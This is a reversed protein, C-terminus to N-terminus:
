GKMKRENKENRMGESGRVRGGKWEGEGERKGRM